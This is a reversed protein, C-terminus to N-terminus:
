AAIPPSIIEQITTSINKDTELKGKYEHLVLACWAALARYVSNGCDLWEGREHIMWTRKVHVVIPRRPRWFVEKVDLSPYKSYLQTDGIYYDGFFSVLKQQMEYAFCTIAAFQYLFPREKDDMIADVATHMNTVAHNGLQEGFLSYPAKLSHMDEINKFSDQRCGVPLCSEYAAGKYVDKFRNSIGYSSKKSNVWNKLRMEYSSMYVRHWSWRRSQEAETVFSYKNFIREDLQIKSWVRTCFPVFQSIFRTISESWIDGKQQETDVRKTKKEDGYMNTTVVWEDEPSGDKKKGKFKMGNIRDQIAQPVPNHVNIYKLEDDEIQKTSTIRNLREALRDRDKHTVGDWLQTV